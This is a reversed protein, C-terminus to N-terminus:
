NFNRKHWRLIYYERTITFRENPRFVAELSPYKRLFHYPNEENFTKPAEETQTIKNNIANIEEEYYKYPEKKTVM